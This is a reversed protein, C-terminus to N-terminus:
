CELSNYDAATWQSPLHNWNPTAKKQTSTELRVEWVFAITVLGIPILHKNNHSSSSSSSKPVFMLKKWRVFLQRLFFFFFFDASFLLLRDFVNRIHSHSHVKTQGTLYVLDLNVAFIFGYFFFFCTRGCQIRCNKERKEWTTNPLTPAM